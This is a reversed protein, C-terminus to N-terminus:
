PYPRLRSEGSVAVEEKDSNESEAFLIGYMIRRLRLTTKNVSKKKLDELFTFMHHRRDTLTDMLGPIVKCQFILSRSPCASTIPVLFRGFLTQTKGRGDLVSPVM